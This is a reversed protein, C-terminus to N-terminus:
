EVDLEPFLALALDIITETTNGQQELLTQSGESVHGHLSCCALEYLSQSHYAM